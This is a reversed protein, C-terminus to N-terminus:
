RDHIAGDPFRLSTWHKPQYPYKKAEAENLELGLGPREPPM